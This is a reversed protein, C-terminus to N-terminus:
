IESRQLRRVVKFEFAVQPFHRMLFVRDFSTTFRENLLAPDFDYATSLQSGDANILLWIQNCRKRYQQYKKEKRTLVENIHEKKLPPVFVASPASFFSETMSDFHWSNIAHVKEPFYDRNFWNYEERFSNGASPVNRSVVKVIKEAIPVMDAKLLTHRYNFHVSVHLAPLSLKSYSDCARRVINACISEQSQRPVTDPSSSWYLDTLEIGIEHSNTHLVFDPEEFDEIQGTPFAPFIKIFRELQRREFEKKSLHRKLM